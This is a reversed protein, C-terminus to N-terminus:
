IQGNGTPEGSTIVSGDGSLATATAASPSIAVPPASPHTRKRVAAALCVPSTWAPGVGITASAIDGSVASIAAAQIPPATDIISRLARLTTRVRTPGPGGTQDTANKGSLAVNSVPPASPMIRRQFASVPSGM